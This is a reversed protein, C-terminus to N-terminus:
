RSESAAGVNAYGHPLLTVPINPAADWKKLFFHVVVQLPTDM